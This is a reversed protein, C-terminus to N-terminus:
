RRGHAAGEAAPPPASVSAATAAPVRASAASWSGYQRKGYLLPEPASEAMTVRLVEGFVATHDGVTVTRAVACDAIAHSADTLHPGGAGLPLRWEARGFRDPVASAFLDSVSRGEEHLLNLAFRGSGLAAHLTPSGNRLCVVLTPPSLAVSALSSCTMGRPAGDPDLATVVSVGSPFAAMLPRIDAEETSPAAPASVPKPM